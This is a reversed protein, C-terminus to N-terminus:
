AWDDGEVIPAEVVAGAGALPVGFAEAVSPLHRPPVPPAEPESRFAPCSEVRHDQAGCADCRATPAATPPPVARRRRPPPAQVAMPQTSAFSQLASPPPPTTAANMVMKTSNELAWRVYASLNKLQLREMAQQYRLQDERSVRVRLPISKTM